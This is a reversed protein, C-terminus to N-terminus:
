RREAAGEGWDGPRGKVPIWCAPVLPSPLPSSRPLTFLFRTKKINCQRLRYLVTLNPAKSSTM